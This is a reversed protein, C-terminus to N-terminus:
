YKRSGMEIERKNESSKKIKYFMFLAVGLGSLLLIIIIIIFIIFFLHSESNCNKGNIDYVLDSKCSDCNMKEESIAGDSCSACNPHCAKFVNKNKDFYYGKPPNNKNYCNSSEELFYYNEQCDLCKNKEEECNKCEESCLYYINDIKYYGEELNLSNDCLIHYNGDKKIEVLNYGELCKKCNKNKTCQSCYLPCVGDISLEYASLVEVNPLKNFNQTTLPSYEYYYSEKKTESKKDICDFMDNCIVTGTCILNYDPCNLLGDYGVVRINGGQRPCVIYDDNIQITLFSSSCYIQYCMPHFISGYIKYKGNPVLSSMICFSTNGLTEGLEKPLESNPHNMEYKDTDYNFYYISNGYNENGYKCNGAFYGQENVNQSHTFCYDTTYITGSYYINNVYKFNQFYIDDQIQPYQILISYTRSLRGSSCSPSGNNEYDFFENEFKTKFDSDLCNNELFECGKNKGFRMLGGTYYNIKYWGSDELAALTFESIIMEEQYIVAGMYDGLLIRQEWHSGSSGTGGQDELEVGEISSCNFYKKAHEVVKPTIILSREKGRIEKKKITRELGKQFYPFMTGLFGLAHTLEHLFVESFYETVKQYSYFSTDRGVTLLGVTPRNSNKDLIIPIASALVGLPLENRNDYKVVILFDSQIDGGTDFISNWKEIGYYNFASIVDKFLNPEEVDEVELLGKIGNVARYLAEKLLPTKDKLFSDQEGQYEFYNTELFIRIPRYDTSLHRTSNNKDLKSSNSFFKIEHNILDAGCFRLNKFEFFIDKEEKLYIIFINYFLILLFLFNKM